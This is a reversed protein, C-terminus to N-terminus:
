HWELHRQRRRGPDQASTVRGALNPWQPKSRDVQWGRPRVFDEDFRQIARPLPVHVMRHPPTGDIDAFEASFVSHYKAVGPDDTHEFDSRGDGVDSGM